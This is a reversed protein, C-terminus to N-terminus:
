PTAAELLRGVELQQLVEGGGEPIRGHTRAARHDVGAPAVVALLHALGALRHARLKVDRDADRARDLVQGAHARRAGDDRDVAVLVCRDELHGVVADHAVEELDHGPEGFLDSSGCNRLDGPAPSPSTCNKGGEGRIRGM